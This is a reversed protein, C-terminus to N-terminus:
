VVFYNLMNYLVTIIKKKKNIEDKIFNIIDEENPNEKSWYYPINNKECEMVMRPCGDHRNCRVMVDVIPYIEEMNANGNVQIINLNGMHYLKSFRLLVNNIVDWGYVWDLFPQNGRKGRYYLINFGEHPKKEFRQTYLPPDILVSIPKKLKLPKLEDILHESVVYFGEVFYDCIKIFITYGLMYFYKTWKTPFRKGGILRCAFLIDSGTFMLRSM